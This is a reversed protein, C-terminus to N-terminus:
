PATGGVAQALPRVRIRRFEVQGPYLQLGIRGKPPLSTVAHDLLRTGNIAVQVQRGQLRIRLHHWTSAPLKLLPSPAAQGFVAGTRQVPAVAAFSPDGDDLLQIERFQGGGVNGEPGARLFV